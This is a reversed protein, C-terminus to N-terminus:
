CGTSRLLRSEHLCDDNHQHDNNHQHGKCNQHKQESAPSRPSLLQLGLFVQALRGLTRGAGLRRLRSCIFLCRSGPLLSGLGLEPRGLAFSLGLLVQGFCVLLTIFRLVQLLAGGFEIRAKM